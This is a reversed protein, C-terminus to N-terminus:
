QNPMNSPHNRDKEPDKVTDKKSSSMKKKDGEQQQQKRENLLWKKADVSLTMWIEPSKSSTFIDIEEDLGTSDQVQLEKILAL